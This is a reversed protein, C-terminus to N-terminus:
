HKPRDGPPTPIAPRPRSLGPLAPPNRALEMGPTLTAVTAPALPKAPALSRAPAAARAPTASPAAGPAPRAAVSGTVEPEPEIVDADIAALRWNGGVPQYVLDFGVKLPATPFRGSLRLAGDPGISPARSLEADLLLVAAFDLKRERWMRFRDALAASSNADRFAPAGLDRLVSYNGTINAQNLASLTGRLLALLVPPPPLDSARAPLAPALLAATLAAAALRLGLRSM